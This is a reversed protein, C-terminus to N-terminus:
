RRPLTRMCNNSEVAVALTRSTCYLGQGQCSVAVVAVVGEQTGHERLKLARLAQALAAMHRLSVCFLLGSMADIGLCVHGVGVQTEHERLKSARLADRVEYLARTSSSALDTQFGPRLCHFPDSM